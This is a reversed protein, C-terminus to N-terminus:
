RRSGGDAAALIRTSAVEALVDGDVVLQITVPQAAPVLREPQGTRNDLVNLGPRLVAGRDASRVGLDRMIDAIIRPRVLAVTQHIQAATLGGVGPLYWQQAFRSTPTVGSGVHIGTATSQAEFGLGGLSGAMHVGPNVGVNFGNRTTGRRFGDFGPFGATTFYRRYPTLGRLLGYAAGVLGSCDFGGPGVGGWIYPKPDQARLWSQVYPVSGGSAFALARGYRLRMGSKDGGVDVQGANLADLFGPAQAQIKRATPRQVVFEGATLRAPINDARDGGSYGPIWGGYARAHGGGPTLYTFSGTVDNGRINVQVNVTKRLPLEGTKKLVADLQQASIKAGPTSIYTPKAAPIKLYTDAYAQVQARTLGLRRGLDLLRNRSEIMAARGADYGKTDGVKESLEQAAKAANLLATENNRGKESNIDLTRGNDHVSQSLGDVAAEFNIAAEAASIDKGTLRDYQYTLQEIATKQELVQGTTRNITQGFDDVAKIVKPNKLQDQVSVLKGTSAVASNATDAQKQQQDALAKASAANVDVQTRLDGLKTTLADANNAARKSDENLYLRGFLSIGKGALQNQRDLEDSVLAIQSNLDTGGKATITDAFQQAVHAADQLRSFVVSGAVAVAGLAINMPGVAATVGKIGAGLGKVVGSLRGTSGVTGELNVSLGRLPLDGIASGVRGITPGLLKSAGYMLGFAVAGQKVPGPLDQVKVVLESMPGLLSNAGKVAGSLVPLFTKGVTAQFDKFQANLIRQQNAVGSSTRAFDGQATTTQRLILSYAAQAKQSGTLTPGIKGLGLRMAEAKLAVESLDIGYKRLPEIQGALGSRLDELVQTPDANNFSAMDAALQVIRISMKEAAPPAIKLAEFFNGFTATSEIAEQRSIGLSKASTSAFKLVADQGVGFVVASKNVSENMDSAAHAADLGFKAVKIGAYIAGGAVATRLTDGFLGSRKAATETERSAQRSSSILARNAVDVRRIAQAHRVEAQEVSLLAKRRQEETSNADKTVVAARKRADTVALSAKEASLTAARSKLEADRAKDLQTSLSGVAQANKTFVASSRDKAELVWSLM